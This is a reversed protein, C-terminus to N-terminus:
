ASTGAADELAHYNHYYDYSYYYYQYYNTTSSLDLRNLVFGYFNAGNTNLIEVATKLNRVPTRGCWVVMLVGDVWRQLASTESLGLVPPTDLVIRDFSGRLKEMLETFQPSGFLETAAHIHEGATIISLNERAVPRIVEELTHKGTLLGSMGPTKRLGFVRHLRGRRLDTDILLTKAGTQAFSLALNTAVVTKGEKPTSSTVMTVHPARSLTGMSLLNTRIVRFNEVLNREDRDNSNLLVGRDPEGIDFKPVIGLGRIQFSSEVQEVNTVTHDLYEILLPVGVALALGVLLSLLAVRARNPAVPNDIDRIDSIGLFALQIREKDQVFDLAEMKKAMENYFRSWALQGSQFLKYDQKIKEYKRATSQYEALKADMQRQSNLLDQYELDFRERAVSYELELKANIADLGKQLTQMKPHGPLFTVSATRIQEEVRRKEKELGDWPSLSQVVSPVVVVGPASPAPATQSSDSDSDSSSQPSSVFQGVNVQNTKDQEAAAILSLRAITDLSPDELRTNIREIENIRKKIRILEHPVNKLGELEIMSRTVEKDDSFEFRDGLLEDIKRSVEAMDRKYAEIVADQSAFRQEERYQLFEAVLAPAYSESWSHLYPWVEIEFNQESNVRIQVKKLYRSKISNFSATVGLRRATREVVHNANMTRIIRGVTADHYVKDTDLPRVLRDIRVVSKSYYVPRQFVYIAMGAMVSLAILLAMLRLHKRAIAVYMMLDYLNFARKKLGPIMPFNALRNPRRSNDPLKRGPIHQCVMSFEFSINPGSLKWGAPASAAVSKPM